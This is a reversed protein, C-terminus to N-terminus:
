CICYGIISRKTDVCGEWDSDSFARLKLDSATPFHLGQSPSKKVYQLVRIAAKHHLNTPSSMFQSLQQVAYSINPRIATVFLLGSILRRFSSIDYLPTGGEKSLKTCADMPNSLPKSALLSSDELLELAFKRQSVVIGQSSRTIELGLFYKLDGIDKIIFKSHLYQKISNIENGTLVM